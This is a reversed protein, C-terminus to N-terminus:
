TLRATKHLIQKIAIHPSFLKDKKRQDKEEDVFTKPENLETFYAKLLIQSSIRLLGNLPSLQSSLSTKDHLSEIISRIWCSWTLIYTNMSLM